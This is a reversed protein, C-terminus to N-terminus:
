YKGIKSSKGSNWWYSIKIASAEMWFCIDSPFKPLQRGVSVSNVTFYVTDRQLTELGKLINFFM